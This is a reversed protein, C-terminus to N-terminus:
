NKLDGSSLWETVAVMPFRRTFARYSLATAAFFGGTIVAEIWGLPLKNGNWLSPVVLLFRELWMGVLICVGMAFLGLPKQKLSRSLLIIFPAAVAILVMLPALTRWPADSIRHLLFGIEEPLNGYWIVLFQVFLMYGTLMCFAFTLKGQDHLQDPRVIKGLNGKRIHVAVLICVAAFGIYLNGVFFYIGFLTSYFHRNLSMVLDFGMLSFVLAYVTLLVISFRRLTRERRTSEHEALKGSEDSNAPAPKKSAAAALDPRLSLYVYYLSMGYLLMLGFANRSFLFPVNLWPARHPDPREIWPIWDHRGLFLIPFLLFSVPLFAVLGESIRKFPAAWRAGVVRWTAAIMVGAVSLGSWFLFNVLFIQWARQHETGFAGWLFVAAGAALLAYLLWVLAKPWPLSDVKLFESLPSSETSSELTNM